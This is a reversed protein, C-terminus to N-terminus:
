ALQLSSIRQGIEQVARNFISKQEANLTYVHGRVESGNLRQSLWAASKGFYKQAIYRLPLLKLHLVEKLDRPMLGRERALASRIISEVENRELGLSYKPWILSQLKREDHECIYRLGNCIVYLTTNRLGVPVNPFTPEKIRGWTEIIEDYPLEYADQEDADNEASDDM